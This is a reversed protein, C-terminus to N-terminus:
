QVLLCVGFRFFTCSKPAVCRCDIAVALFGKKAYSILRPMMSSTDGNTAHIWIIVPLKRVPGPCEECHEGVPLDVSDCPLTRSMAESNQHDSHWIMTVPIQQNCPHLAETALRVCRKCYGAPLEDSTGEAQELTWDRASTMRQMQRASSSTSQAEASSNSLCGEQM